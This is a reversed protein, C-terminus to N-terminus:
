MLNYNVRSLYHAGSLQSSKPHTQPVYLKLNAASWLNTEVYMKWM